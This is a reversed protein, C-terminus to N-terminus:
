DALGDDSASLRRRLLDDLESACSSSCDCPNEHSLHANLVAALAALLQGTSPTTHPM